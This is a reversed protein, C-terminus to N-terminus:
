AFDVSKEYVVSHALSLLAGLSLGAFFLNFTDTFLFTAFSLCALSILFQKNNVTEFINYPNRTYLFTLLGILSLSAVAKLSTILFLASTFLAILIYNSRFYCSNRKLREFADAQTQPPVFQTPHTFEALTKLNTKFETIFTSVNM